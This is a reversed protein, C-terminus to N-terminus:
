APGAGQHNFIADVPGNRDGITVKEGDIDLTLAASQPGHTGAMVM